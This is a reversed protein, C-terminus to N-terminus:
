YRMVNIGYSKQYLQLAVLIIKINIYTCIPLCILPLIGLISFVLFFILFQDIFFAKVGEWGYRIVYETCWIGPCYRYGQYANISRYITWVIIVFISIVSLLVLVKLLKEFFTKM